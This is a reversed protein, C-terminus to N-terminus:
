SNSHITCGKFISFICQVKHMEMSYGQTLFWNQVMQKKYGILIPTKYWIALFEVFVNVPFQNPLLCSPVWHFLVINVQGRFTFFFFAFFNYNIILVIAFTLKKPSWCGNGKATTEIGAMHMSDSKPNQSFVELFLMKVLTQKEESFM